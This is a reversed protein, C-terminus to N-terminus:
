WAFPDVPKSNKKKSQAPPQLISDMFPTSYSGSGVMMTGFAEGAKNVSGLAGMLGGGKKPKGKMAAKKRLREEHLKAKMRGTAPALRLEEARYATDEMQRVRRNHEREAKSLGFVM